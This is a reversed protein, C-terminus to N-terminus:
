PTQAATLLANKLETYNAPVSLDHDFLNYTLIPQNQKDLIIVDRWQAHWDGWVNEASTDQLWPVSLGVCYSANYAELGQLNIGLIRIDAPPQMAAFEAQMQDM